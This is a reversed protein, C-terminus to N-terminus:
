LLCAEIVLAPMRYGVKLPTVIIYQEDDAVVTKVDLELDQFELNLQTCSGDYSRPGPFIQEVDEEYRGVLSERLTYNVSYEKICLNVTFGEPLHSYSLVNRTNWTNWGANTKQRLLDYNM